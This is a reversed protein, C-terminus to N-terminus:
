DACTTGSASGYAAEANLDADVVICGSGDVDGMPADTVDSGHDAADRSETETSNGCAAAVVGALAM